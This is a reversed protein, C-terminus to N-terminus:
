AAPQEAVIDQRIASATGQRRQAENLSLPDPRSGAKVARAAEGFRSSQAVRVDPNSGTREAWFRDREAAAKNAVENDHAEAQKRATEAEKEVFKYERAAYAAPDMRVAEAQRVLETPSIPLPANYLTQYKWQINALTGMTSGLGNRVDEMTFTPSGPVSGPAGSVYRGGADRPQQFGPAEAPVFGATRAADNQARYFALQAEMNAKETGWNNLAPAIQQDYLQRNGNLAAEATAREQAAEQAAQAAAQREQEAATLVGTFATMARPDLAIIQEDTFGTQRLIEQVSPM